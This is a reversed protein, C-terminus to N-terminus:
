HGLSEIALDLLRPLDLVLAITGDGLETAGSIGRWRAAHRGLGRVLAETPGDVEDVVIAAYSSGNGGETAVAAAHSVIIVPVNGDSTNAAESSHALLKRMEVLPVRSGGWEITGTELNRAVDGAAIFGTEVIRRADLCYHYGASRVVLSPLLALTTPIVIEFTTGGAPESSVRLEGGVREVAREVVDLGVGRGSVKSVSAATSFGPRFILRLAHQKTLLRGAEIIGQAAAARTIRLPDIGRGDDVVSLVVRTGESKAELRVAGRAKKGIKKRESPLEIGHDVANRLIHLLPDAIADALVKDLKVEGGGISFDVEKGTSRAAIRGARVARELMQAVTVMRLGILREEIKVLRERIAETSQQVAARDSPQLELSQALTLAATIEVLTEHTASIISELETLEVRVQNTLSSISVAETGARPTERATPGEDKKAKKSKEVMLETLSLQDFGSVRGSLKERDAKTTYVIRFSIQDPSDCSLGPLTSIIEGDEALTDSLNRFRDDFTSLEFTVNVIYLRAEEALAERLRHEEHKSLGRAIEEPLADVTKNGMSPAREEGGKLALKRFLEIVSTTDPQAEARATAHLAQSIAGAGADFANLIDDDIKIRGLRVEDLLTEFEHAIRAITDLELTASSGKITHIHRFIRGVLERRSRGEPHRARLTQLDGFLIELLDETEAVFERLIPNEM